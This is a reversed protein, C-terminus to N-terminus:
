LDHKHKKVEDINDKFYQYFYKLQKDPKELMHQEATPISFKSIKMAETWYQYVAINTLFPCFKISHIDKTFKFLLVGDTLIVNMFAYPNRQGTSRRVRGLLFGCLKSFKDEDLWKVFVDYSVGADFTNASTANSHNALKEDLVSSISANNTGIISEYLTKM